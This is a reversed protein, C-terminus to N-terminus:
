KGEKSHCSVPAESCDAKAGPVALQPPDGPRGPLGHAAVAACIACLALVGLGVTYGGEVPYGSEQLKSTVITGTLATGVAGGITRVNLNVSTAAGTRAPDALVVVAGALAAFVLGSGTGTLAACLYLEWSFRHEFAAMALGIASVLCGLLVMQRTGIRRSGRAVFMGAVITMAATPLMMRGAAATSADFGYGNESPTQNFQPLYVLAAYLAMGNFLAVLNAALLGKAVLMRPDILPHPRRLEVALWTALLVAVASGVAAASPSLWGWGPVREVGILLVVLWAALLAASGLPVPERTCVPSERLVVASVVGALIAMAAPLLFLWHLGLAAQIPGALVLGVGFGVAPLSALFALASQVKSASVEDRVIAFSLPLTGAGVGQVVRALIMAEITMALSALVAGFALLVLSTVLMQKKGYADGLRGVIPTAIASSILFATFIWAATEQSTRFQAQMEPLAPITLSQLLSYACVGTALVGFAVKTRGAKPAYLRASRRPCVTWSRHFGVEQVSTM